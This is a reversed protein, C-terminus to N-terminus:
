RLLLKGSTILDSDDKEVVPNQPWPQPVVAIDAYQQVVRWADLKVQSDLTLWARFKKHDQNSSNIPSISSIRSERSRLCSLHPCASPVGSLPHLPLM